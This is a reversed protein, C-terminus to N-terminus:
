MSINIQQLAEKAARPVLVRILERRYDATTRFSTRCKSESEALKGAEEWIDLRFSKGAVFQEAKGSRRPVPGALSLAIRAQQCVKNEADPVIIVAVGILPLDMAQRRSYKIYRSCIPGNPVPIVIGTLIENEALSTKGPSVYIEDIPIIRQRNPGEVVLQAGMALLPSATDASPAGNCINGGITAINRVQISGIFSAADALLPYHKRIVNSSEISHLTVMSGIRLENGNCTIEDLGPINRLSIVHDPSRKNNKIEVILDTGGAILKASPGYTGLLDIADKVSRPQELTFKRM